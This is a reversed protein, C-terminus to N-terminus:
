SSIKNIAPVLYELNLLEPKPDYCRLTLNFFGEHAPLWNQLRNNEPSKKSIDISVSGNAHYHLDNYLSNISNKGKSEKTICGNEDYYSISWFANVPPVAGQSFTIQYSNRGHLLNGQSDTRAIFYMSEEPINAWIGHKAVLARIIYNKDYNGIDLLLGWGNINQGVEFLKRELISKAFPASKSLGNLVGTSLDQYKFGDELSIGIEKLLTLIMAEDPKPPAFKIVSGLAQFFKLEDPCTSNAPVLPDHNFSHKNNESKSIFIKKLKINNQLAHVQTIDEHPDTSIRVVIYIYDLDSKVVTTDKPANILSQHNTLFTTPLLNGFTRTGVNALTEMYADLIQIGVWRGQFDPATLLLPGERLNVVATSYLFDTAANIFESSDYSSLSRVHRFTNITDPQPHDINLEDDAYTSKKLRDNWCEVIPYGWIYAQVGIHFAWDEQGKEIESLLDINM